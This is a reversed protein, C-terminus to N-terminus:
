NTSACAAYIASGVVSPRLLNRVRVVSGAYIYTCKGILDKTVDISASVPNASCQVHQHLTFLLYVLLPVSYIVGV